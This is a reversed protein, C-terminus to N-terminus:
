PQAFRSTALADYMAKGAEPDLFSLSIGLEKKGFLRSFLATQLRQGSPYHVSFYFAYFELGGITERGSSSDIQTGPMQTQLTTFLIENVSKVTTPYYGDVEEDYPQYNAEMVNYNGKRVVFVQQSFDPVPENFTKEVAEKGRNKNTDWEAEPVTEFDAPLKISWQFLPFFSTATDSGNTNRSTCSLLLLSVMVLIYLRM